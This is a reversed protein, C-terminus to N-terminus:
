TINASGAPSGRWRSRWTAPCATSSSTPARSSPTSSRPGPLDDVRTAIEVGGGELPRLFDAAEEVNRPNADILRLEDVVGHRALFFGVARGIGGGGFIVVKHSM